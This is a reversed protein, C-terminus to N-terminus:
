NSLVCQTEFGRDIMPSWISFYLQRDACNFPKPFNNNRAYVLANNAQAAELNAKLQGSCLGCGRGCKGGCAQAPSSYGFSGNFNSNCSSCEQAMSTSGLLMLGAGSFLVALFLRHTKSM